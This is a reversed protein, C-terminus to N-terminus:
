SQSRKARLHRVLQRFLALVIVTGAAILAIRNVRQYLRVFDPPQIQLQMTWTVRDPVAQGIRPNQPDLRPVVMDLDFSAPITRGYLSPDDPISAALLIAINSEIDTPKAGPTLQPIKIKREWESSNRSSVLLPRPAPEGPVELQGRLGVTRHLGKISKQALKVFLPNEHGALVLYTGPPPLDRNKIFRRTSLGAAALALLFALLLVLGFPTFLPPSKPGSQPAPM